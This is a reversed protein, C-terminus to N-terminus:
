MEYAMFVIANVIVTLASFCEKLSAASGKPICTSGGVLVRIFRSIADKKVIADEMVREVEASQFPDAQSERGRKQTQRTLPSEKLCQHQIKKYQKILYEIVRNDSDEGGLHTDGATALANDNISLLFIDLTGGLHYGVKKDLGYALELVNGVAPRQTLGVNPLCLKHFLEDLLMYKTNLHTLATDNAVYSAMFDTADQLAFNEPLLQVDSVPCLTWSASWWIPINSCPFNRAWGASVSRPDFDPCFLQTLYCFLHSQSVLMVM